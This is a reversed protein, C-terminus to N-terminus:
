FNFGYNGYEYFLDRYVKSEMMNVSDQLIWKNGADQFILLKDDYVTCLYTEFGPM